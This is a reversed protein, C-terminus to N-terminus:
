SEDDQCLVSTKYKGTLTFYSVTIQITVEEPRLHELECAADAVKEAADKLRQRVQWVTLGLIETSSLDLYPEQIGSDDLYFYPNRQYIEMTSSFNDVFDQHPHAFGFTCVTMLLVAVYKKM